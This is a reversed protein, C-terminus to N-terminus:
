KKAAKAWSDKLGVIRNFVSLEATSDEDKRFYGMRVFQFSEGAQAQALAPEIYGNAIVLSNENLRESFDIDEGDRDDLLYDYLRSNSGACM